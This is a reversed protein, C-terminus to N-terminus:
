DNAQMSFFHILKRPMLVFNAEFLFKRLLTTQWLTPRTNQTVSLYLCKASWFDIFTIFKLPHMMFYEFSWLWDATSRELATFAAASASATNNFDLIFLMACSIFSFAFRKIWVHWGQHLTHKAFYYFLKWAIEVLQISCMRDTLCKIFIFLRWLFCNFSFGGVKPM